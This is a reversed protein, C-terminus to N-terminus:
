VARGLERQFERWAEQAQRANQTDESDKSLARFAMYAALAPIFQPLVPLTVSASVTPVEVPLETVALAEPLVRFIDAVGDQCYALM